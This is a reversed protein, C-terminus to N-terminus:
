RLAEQSARLQSEVISLEAAVLPDHRDDWLAQHVARLEAVRRKADDRTAQQQEAGTTM